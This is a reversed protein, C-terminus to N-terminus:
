KKNKRNERALPPAGVGGYSKKGRPLVERVSVRPVGGKELIPSIGWGGGEKEELVTITKNTQNTKKKKERKAKQNNCM